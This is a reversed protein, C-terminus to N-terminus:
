ARARRRLQQGGLGLLGFGLLLLTGPEPVTVLIDDIDVGTHRGKIYPEYLPARLDQYIAIDNIKAIWEDNLGTLEGTKTTGYYGYVKNNIGDIVISLNVLTDVTSVPFTGLPTTSTGAYFSWVLGYSPDVANQMQTSTASWYAYTGYRTADNDLGITYNHSVGYTVGDEVTPTNLAYARFSLTIISNYDKIDLKHNLTNEANSNGSYGTQGDLVRSGMVSSDVVYFDSYAVRTSQWGNEGIIDDKLANSEFDESFIVTAGAIAPMGIVVMLALLCAGITATSKSIVNRM